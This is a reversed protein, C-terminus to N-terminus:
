DCGIGQPGTSLRHLALVPNNEQAVAPIMPALLLFAIIIKKM